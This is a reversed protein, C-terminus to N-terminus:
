QQQEKAVKQVLSPIDIQRYGESYEAGVFMGWLRCFFKELLPFIIANLGAQTTHCALAKLKIARVKSVNIFRNPLLTSTVFYDLAQRNQYRAIAHRVIQGTALHDPHPYPTLDHYFEFSVIVDPQHQEIQALARGIAVEDCVVARDLYGMYTIQEVGLLKAAQESEALRLHIYEEEPVQEYRQDWVGRDGGAFIVSVVEVQAQTARYVLGGTFGELDDPHPTMVLLKKYKRPDIHLFTISPDSKTPPAANASSRRHMAIGALQLVGEILLYLGIIAVLYRM